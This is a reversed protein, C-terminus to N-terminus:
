TAQMVIDKLKKKPEQAEMGALVNHNRHGVFISTRNKEEHTTAHSSTAQMVIDKLKKKPEQAEMGALVQSIMFPANSWHFAFYSLICREFEEVLKIFLSDAETEESFFLYMEEECGEAKVMYEAAFRILHPCEKSNTFGIQRAVYQPFRELKLPQGTDSLRIRPIIQYRKRKFGFHMTAAIVLGISSAVIIQKYTPKEGSSEDTDEAM